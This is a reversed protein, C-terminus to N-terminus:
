ITQLSVCYYIPITGIVHPFTNPHNPKYVNEHNEPTNEALVTEGAAGIVNIDYGLPLVNLDAM